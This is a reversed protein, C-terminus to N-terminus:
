LSIYIYTMFVTSNLRFFPFHYVIYEIEAIRIRLVNHNGFDINRHHANVGGIM